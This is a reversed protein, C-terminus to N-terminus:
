ESFTVHHGRMSRKMMETISLRSQTKKGRSDCCCMQVAFTYMVLRELSIQAQFESSLALRMQGDTRESSLGDLL